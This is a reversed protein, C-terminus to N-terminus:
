LSPKSALILTKFTSVQGSSLRVALSGDPRRVEFISVQDSGGTKTQLLKLIHELSSGSVESQSSM